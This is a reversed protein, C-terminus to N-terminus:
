IMHYCQDDDLQFPPKKIFTNERKENATETETEQETMLADYIFGFLLLLLLMVFFFQQQQQDDDFLSISVKKKM